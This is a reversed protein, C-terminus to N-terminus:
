AYYKNKCRLVKLDFAYLKGSHRFSHVTFTASTNIIYENIKFKRMELKTKIKQVKAFLSPM